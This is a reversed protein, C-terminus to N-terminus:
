NHRFRQVVDLKLWKIKRWCKTTILIWIAFSIITISQYVVLNPFHFHAIMTYNGSPLLWARFVGNIEVPYIKIGKNSLMLDAQWGPFYMENEVMLKPEKLAVKYMIDNIGYHTQIVQSSSNSNAQLLHTESFTSVPLSISTSNTKAILSPELLLPTWKMLMYKRFLDNSEVIQRANLVMSEYDEIMYSGQLYGKWSPYFEPNLLGGGVTERPPRQNPMSEFISFTILKGKKELPINYWHYYRDAPNERWSIMDYIVRFGDSSILIVILLLAVKSLVAPQKEVSWMKDPSKNKLVYYLLISFTVFLIFAAPILVLNVFTQRNDNNLGSYLSIVGLSFWIIVFAARATFEKWSLRREIIAKLGAIGLIMVPIAVFVRYDSTPFRSLKLAPMVSTIAQWFPSYPGAVMLVSLVLVAVFVWYKKIASISIFSAFVLMPLTVFTSTMPFEGGIPQNSMFLAPIHQVWLGMHELSAYDRFRTVENREQWFPGLHIVSISIGLVMLGAMAAGVRIARRKIKLYAHFIQLSLFIPIIFLSSIFSGPYGGTALFYVVIPIFLARKTIKPDETNLKFVYFLWPAIAFARIVDSHEANSYFGGFFQFAVAGVLAYRPSKFILNLLLFMGVSGAFIHLTQLIVSYHLTFPIHLLPFMWFIPYHYGSQTIMELPLGMGQYPIWEPFNRCQCCNDLFSAMCLLHIYFGV